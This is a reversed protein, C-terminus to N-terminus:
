PWPAENLSRLRWGRDDLRLISISGPGIELRHHHDLPLGLADCVAAKIVDAHCIAAVAADPHAARAASIWRGVRAQAECMSEGGPARGRSRERIWPEWAPHGRLDEFSVGTWDGFDIENLDEAVIPDVGLREALPEATQRAREMPSVYIAAIPERSLREAVRRAQDLGTESLTVGAMRGCLIRDLRDHAGHRVFFITTTM